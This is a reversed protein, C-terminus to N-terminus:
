VIYFVEYRIHRIIIASLATVFMASGALMGFTNPTELLTKPEKFQHVWTYSQLTAHLIVYLVTTYGGVQHLINLREYSYATLYALPTNKLSLFTIFCANIIAM